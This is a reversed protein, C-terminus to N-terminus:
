SQEGREDNRHGPAAVIRGIPQVGRRAREGVGQALTVCLRRGGDRAIRRLRGVREALQEVAKALVGM